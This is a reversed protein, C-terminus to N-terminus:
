DRHRKAWDIITESVEDTKSPSLIDGALVHNYPDEVGDVEIIQAPGGWRKAVSRIEDPVIVHDEPSLLFLAPTNIRSYDLDKLAKLLGFMPFVASSPYRTTWWKGHLENVPEFSRESGAILPLLTQAWPMTGIATPLGRAEYNASILVTATIEKALESQALGWTVVSAGTSTSIILVREGLRKAIAVAEAFDYAWDDNTYDGMASSNRGHGALRAFYLNADLAEAVKEPVPRLEHKTASFGHIYVVAWQTPTRATPDAWIIEKEAGPKIDDFRAESDALYTEVDSGISSPDFNTKLETDPRPGAVFVLIAALLFLTAGKFIRKV